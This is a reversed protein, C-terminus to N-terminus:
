KTVCREVVPIDDATYIDRKRGIGVEPGTAPSPRTNCAACVVGVLELRANIVESRVTVDIEFRLKASDIRDVRGLRGVWWGIAGVVASHRTRSTIVDNFVSVCAIRIGVSNRCHGIDNICICAVVGHAAAAAIVGDIAASAVIEKNPGSLPWRRGPCCKQRHLCHCLRRRYRRPSLCCGLLRIM